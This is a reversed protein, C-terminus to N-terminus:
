YMDLTPYKVDFEPVCQAAAVFSISGGLVLLFVGLFIVKDISSAKKPIETEWNEDEDDSSDSASAHGRSKEKLAVFFLDLWIVKTM